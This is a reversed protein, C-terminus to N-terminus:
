DVGDGGNQSGAPEPPTERQILIKGIRRDKVNLVKLSVGDVEIEEGPEPVHGLRNYILGGLTDSEEDSLKAALLENVDDILIRADVEYEDPGLPKVMPEESEDYEDRIEGVIEELIDEITVLGATGGYEDIVIAMHVRRQQLERLLEDVKKTEPVFYAPRTLSPLRVSDGGSRGHQRFVKLLDKAYLIGVIHDVTEEYIPIRSHGHRIAADTAELLPTGAELAVMDIRPVMVERALMEGIDFVSYIMKKEAVELVGGEEGADVLTKIEDQTVIPMGRRPKGGFPRAILNTAWVLFRVIPGFSRAMLEIPRAVLLAIRESHALAVSKPVLEGLILTVATLVVTIIFVAIGQAASALGPIPLQAIWQALGESLNIAATASALFGMLTVGIQVTALLRSSDDALRLVLGATENGSEMLQKMRLRPVSVMAMESASFFANLTILIALLIFESGIGSDM